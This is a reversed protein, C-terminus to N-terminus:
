QSMTLSWYHLDSSGVTRMCLQYLKHANCKYSCLISPLCPVWPSLGLFYLGQM